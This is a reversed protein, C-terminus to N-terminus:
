SGLAYYFWANSLFLRMLLWILAIFGVRAYGPRPSPSAAGEISQEHVSMQVYIYKCFFM